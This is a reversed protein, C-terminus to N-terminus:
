RPEPQISQALDWIRSKQIKNNQNDSKTNLSLYIHSQLDTQYDMVRHIMKWHGFSNRGCMCSWVDGSVVAM